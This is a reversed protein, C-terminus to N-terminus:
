LVRRDPVRLEQFIRLTTSTAKAGALDTTAVLVVLDSSELTRLVHESFTCPTDVLVQEFAGALAHLAAASLDPSIREADEPYRPSGLLAVGGPHMTVLHRIEEP